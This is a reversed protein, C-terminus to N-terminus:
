KQFMILEQEWKGGENNTSDLYRLSTFCQYTWVFNFSLRVHSLNRACKHIPTTSVPFFGIIFPFTIWGGRQSRVSPPAAEDSSDM